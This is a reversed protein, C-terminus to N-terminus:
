LRGAQGFQFLSALLRTPFQQTAANYAAGAENFMQRGFALLGEPNVAAAARSAYILRVLM